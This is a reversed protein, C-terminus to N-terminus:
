ESLRARVNGTLEILGDALILIQDAEASHSTYTITANIGNITGNTDISATSIKIFGQENVPELWVDDQLVISKVNINIFMENAGFSSSLNENNFFKGTVKKAITGTQFFNLEEANFVYLNGSTSDQYFNKTEKLTLSATRDFDIERNRDLLNEVLQILIIGATLILFPILSAAWM